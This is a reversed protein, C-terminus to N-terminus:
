LSLGASLSASRTRDAEADLTDARTRLEKASAELGEAIAVGWPAPEGDPFSFLGTKSLRHTVKVDLVGTLGSSNEDLFWTAKDQPDPRLEFPTYGPAEGAYLVKFGTLTNQVSPLGIETMCVSEIRSLSLVREYGAGSESDHLGLFDVDGMKLVALSSQM